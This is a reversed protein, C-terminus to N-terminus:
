SAVWSIEVFTRDVGDIRQFYMAVGIAEIASDTEYEVIGNVVVRYHIM